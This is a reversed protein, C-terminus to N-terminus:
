RALAPTPRPPNLFAALELRPKVEFSYSLRPSTLVLSSLTSLIRPPMQGIQAPCPRTHSASRTRKTYPLRFVLLRCLKPGPSCIKAERRVASAKVQATQGSLVSARTCVSLPLPILVNPGRSSDVRVYMHVCKLVRRESAAFM